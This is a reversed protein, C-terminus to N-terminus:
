CNLILNFYNELKQNNDVDFEERKVSERMAKELEMAEQKVIDLIGMISVIGIKSIFKRCTNMLELHLQMELQRYESLTIDDVNDSYM